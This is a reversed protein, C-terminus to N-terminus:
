RQNKWLHVVGLDWDPCRPTSKKFNKLVFLEVFIRSFEFDSKPMDISVLIPQKNFFPLLFNHKFFYWNVSCV